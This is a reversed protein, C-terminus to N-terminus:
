ASNLVNRPRLLFIPWILVPSSFLAVFTLAFKLQYHFRAIPGKEVACLAILVGILGIVFAGFYVSIKLLTGAILIIHIICDRIVTSRLFGKGVVGAIISWAM